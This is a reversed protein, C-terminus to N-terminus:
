GGLISEISISWSFIYAAMLNCIFFDDFKEFVVKISENINELLNFFLINDQLYTPLIILLFNTVFFSQM